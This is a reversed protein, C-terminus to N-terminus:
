KGDDDKRLYGLEWGREVAKRTHEERAKRFNAPIKKGSWASSPWGNLEEYFHAFVKARLRMVQNDGESKKADRLLSMSIPARVYEMPARSQTRALTRGFFDVIECGGGANARPVYCQNEIARARRCFSWGLGHPNTDAELGPEPYGASDCHALVEVGKMGFMRGVEPFRMEGCAIASLKGLPTDAVPFMNDWGVKKVYEDLLDDPSVALTHFRRYKSLIKGDPAMVFCCNFFSGPWIPDREFGMGIIYVGYESTKKAVAETESGPIEIAAKDIWEQIPINRREYEGIYPVGTMSMEPFVLLDTSWEWTPNDEGLQGRCVKDLAQHYMQVNQKKAERFKDETDGAQGAKGWFQVCTVWYNDYKKRM